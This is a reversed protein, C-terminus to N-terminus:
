AIHDLIVVTCDELDKIMFANGDVDGPKKVLLEGKKKQFMFDEKKLKKKEEKKPEVKKEEIKTVEKLDKIEIQM